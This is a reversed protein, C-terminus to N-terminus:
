RSPHCLWRVEQPMVNANQSIQELQDNVQQLLERTATEDDKLRVYQNMVNALAGLDTKTANIREDVSKQQAEIEAKNSQPDSKKRELDFKLKVLEQLELEKSSLRGPTGIGDLNLEGAKERVNKVLEEKRFQYRQKLNNLVVSRELQANQVLLKQNELHQNVIAEALMPADDGATAPDIALEIINTEPVARVRITSLLKDQPTRDKDSTLWAARKLDPNKLVQTILAPHQLLLVHKHILRNVLDTAAPSSQTADSPLVEVLAAQRNINLPVQAIAPVAALLLVLFARGFATSM